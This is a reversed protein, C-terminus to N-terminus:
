QMNQSLEKENSFYEINKVKGNLFSYITIVDKKKAFLKIHKEDLLYVSFKYDRMRPLAILNKIISPMGSLDALYIANRSPLFDPKKSTLFKKLVESKSKSDVYIIKSINKDLVISKDFQDLVKINPIDQNLDLANLYVLFCLFIIIQKM